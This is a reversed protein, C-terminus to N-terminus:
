FSESHIQELFEEFKQPSFAAHIAKPDLNMFCLVWWHEPIDAVQKEFLSTKPAWDVNAIFAPGDPSSASEAIQKSNFFKKTLEHASFEAWTSGASIRIYHIKKTKGFLGKKEQTIHTLRLEQNYSDRFIITM